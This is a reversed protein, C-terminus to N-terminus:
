LFVILGIIKANKSARNSYVMAKCNAKIQRGNNIVTFNENFFVKKSVLESWAYKIKDTEKVCKLWSDAEDLSLGFLDGWALNVFFINGTEVEAEFVPLHYIKLYHEHKSEFANVVSELLIIKKYLGLQTKCWIFAPRIWKQYSKWAGFIATALVGIKGIAADVSNWWEM